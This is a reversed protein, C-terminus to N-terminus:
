KGEGHRRIEKSRGLEVGDIETRAHDVIPLLYFTETISVFREPEKSVIVGPTRGEAILRYIALAQTEREDADLDVEGEEEKILSRIEGTSLLPQAEAAWLTDDLRDMIMMAICTKLDM